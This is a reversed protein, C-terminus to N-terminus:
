NELGFANRAPNPATSPAPASPTPPNPAASAPGGTPDLPHDTTQAPAARPPALIVPQTALQREIAPFGGAEPVFASPLPAPRLNSADDQTPRHGIQYGGVAAAVVAVGAILAGWGSRRPLSAATHIADGEGLHLHVHITGSEPLPLSIAENEQSPRPNGMVLSLRSASM